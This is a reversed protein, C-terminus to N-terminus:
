RPSTGSARGPRKWPATMRREARGSPAAAEEHHVLVFEIQRNHVRSLAAIGRPTRPTARLRRKNHSEAAIQRGHQRGNGQDDDARDTADDDLLM